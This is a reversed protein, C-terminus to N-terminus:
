YSRLHRIREPWDINNLNKSFLELAENWQDKANSIERGQVMNSLKYYRQM